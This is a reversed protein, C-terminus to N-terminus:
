LTALGANVDEDGRGQVLKVTLYETGMVPQNIEKEPLVPRLVLLVGDIRHLTFPWDNLLFEDGVAFRARETQPNM